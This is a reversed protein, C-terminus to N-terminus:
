GLRIIHIYPFPHLSSRMCISICHVVEALVDRPIECDDLILNVAQHKISRGLFTRVLDQKASFLFAYDVGESLGHKVAGDFAIHKTPAVYLNLTGRSNKILDFAATTKGTQRGMDLSTEFVSVGNFGQTYGHEVVRSLQVNRSKNVAEVYFQSLM